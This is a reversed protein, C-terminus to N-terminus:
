AKMKHGEPLAVTRGEGPSVGLALLFCTNFQKMSVKAKLQLDTRL